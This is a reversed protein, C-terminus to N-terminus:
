SSLLDELISPYIRGYQIERLLVETPIEESQTAAKLEKLFLSAYPHGPQKWPQTSLNAFHLIKTTPSYSDPENFVQPLDGFDQTAFGRPGAALTDRYIQSDTQLQPLWAALKWHTLQACDLLMVNTYRPGLSGPGHMPTALAGHQQMDWELLEKLDCLVLTDADLYIARGKYECIEPIAFRLLLNKASNLKLHSPPHSLDSVQCPTQTRREISCRLVERPLWQKPEVGVFVRIPDVVM